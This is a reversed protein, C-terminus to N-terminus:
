RIRLAVNLWASMAIVALCGAIPLEIGLVWYAGVVTITQGIVALWRLRVITQLRLRSEGARLWEFVSARRATQSNEIATM